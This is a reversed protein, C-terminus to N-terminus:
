KSKLIKIVKKQSSMMEKLIKEQIDNKLLVSSVKKDIGTFQKKLQNKMDEMAPDLARKLEARIMKRMKEEDTDETADEVLVLDGQMMVVPLWCIKVKMM